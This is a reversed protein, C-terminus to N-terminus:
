LVVDMQKVIFNMSVAQQEEELNLLDLLLLLLLLMVLSCVCSVTM